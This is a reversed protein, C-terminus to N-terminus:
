ASDEKNVRFDWNTLFMIKCDRNKFNTDVLTCYTHKWFLVYRNASSLMNKLRYKFSLSRGLVEREGLLKCNQFHSRCFSCVCSSSIQSSLLMRQIKNEYNEVHLTVVTWILFSGPMRTNTPSRRVRRLIPELLTNGLIRSGCVRIVAFHLQLLNFVILCPACCPVYQLFLM